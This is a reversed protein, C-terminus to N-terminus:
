VDVRLCIALFVERPRLAVLRLARGLQWMYGGTLFTFRLAVVKKQGRRIAVPCWARAFRWMCGSKIFTPRLAVVNRQRPRIVM